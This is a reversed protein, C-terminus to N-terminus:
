WDSAEVQSFRLWNFLSSAAWQSLRTTSCTKKKKKKKKMTEKSKNLQCLMPLFLYVKIFKESDILRSGGGDGGFHKEYSGM